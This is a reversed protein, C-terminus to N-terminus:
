QVLSRAAQLLVPRAEIAQLVAEAPVWGLLSHPRDEGRAARAPHLLKVEAGDLSRVAGQLHAGKGARLQQPLRLHQPVRLSHETEKVRYHHACWPSSTRDQQPM